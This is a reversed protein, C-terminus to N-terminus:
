LNTESTRNPLCLILAMTEPMYTTSGLDTGSNSSDTSMSTKSSYHRRTEETLSSSYTTRVIDLLDMYPMPNQFPQINALLPTRMSATQSQWEPARSCVYLSIFFIHLKITLSLYLWLWLKQSTIRLARTWELTQHTQRASTDFSLCTKRSM